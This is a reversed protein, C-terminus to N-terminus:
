QMRELLARLTAARKAHRGAWARPDGGCPPAYGSDAAGSAHRREKDSVAAAWEIAEREEATLLGRRTRQANKREVFFAVLALIAVPGLVVAILTWGYILPPSDNM